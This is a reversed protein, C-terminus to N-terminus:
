APAPSEEVATTLVCQLDLHVRPRPDPKPPELNATWALKQAQLSDTLAVDDKGVAWQWSGVALKKAHCRYLILKYHGARLASHCLPSAAAQLATYLPEIGSEAEVEKKM